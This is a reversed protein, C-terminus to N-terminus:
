PWFGVVATMIVPVAAGGLITPEYRWQRVAALAAADFPPWSKLVKASNVTGTQDVVFEVYVAGSQRTSRAAQPYVASVHRTRRPEAVSGGIRLPVGPPPSPMPIGDGPVRQEDWLIGTARELMHVAESTRGETRYLAALQLSAAFATARQGLLRLLDREGGRQATVRATPAMLLAIVLFSLLTKM